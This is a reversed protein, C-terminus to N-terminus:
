VDTIFQWHYGGATKRVGRCVASINKFNVNNKESAKLLCDYIIGTEICLVEKRQVSPKGYQSNNVGRYKDKIEESMTLGKNWAKKGKNAKSIKAKQEESCPRGPRGRLAARIKEKTEEKVVRGKGAESIKKRTEETVIRGKNAASIRKLADESLHRGVMDPRPKGKKSESIRKCTEPSKIHGKLKESRIKNAEPSQIVGRASCDGGISHNYGKHPNTSNFLSITRIELDCADKESLNKAIIMHEINNWGYKQIARYFHANNKYGSGDNSWRIKTDQCTIGVYVKQSPTKHMYVTFNNTEEM